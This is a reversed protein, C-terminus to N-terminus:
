RRGRAFRVELWHAVLSLTLTLVLYIAATTLWIEFAMFTDSAVTRAETTLDFVAIVSVIASHKILNVLVGTMPPLMLPVAQPLVIDRYIKGETLGVSRGAEWQGRHVSQIGARIIEAAFSGEYFALCLIGAWLRPIDLVRAIIFYFILIQLLLPTNRVLELYITAVWQAVISRSLRALATLLGIAVTLIMGIWAIELTVFMGKILPGWILEGDVTRWLYQPVKEWQWKYNMGQAGRVIFWVVLSGLIAFQLYSSLPSRLWARFVQGNSRRAALRSIPATGTM